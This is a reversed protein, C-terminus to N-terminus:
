AWSFEVECTSAIIAVEICKNPIAKGFEPHYTSGVIRSKGERVSWSIRAGSSLRLQGGNGLNDSEVEVKPHLYFRATATDYKGGIVDRVSVKSDSMWVMRRHLPSGNLYRYGDHACEVRMTNEDIRLDFPYARRAVRFAGWVESSNQANISVTSHAATGRQRLREAGEEYVSTGSNVVLREGHISFEFSLTDAHAHGPLYDPGVPAVDFLVVKGNRQLRVYGSEELHTIGEAPVFRTTTPLELREAYEDVQSPMAAIKFAADNFFAIEGDPHCMNTLWMRMKKIAELWSLPVSKEYARFLNVLDLLDELVIAHYMTSREFHGGDHLVQETLQQELIASGLAIWRDPERGSFFCGAFLLAKANGLLHNGLLHYELRKSLCYAQIALSRIWREQLRNGNLSWKVWNVIRKSIPYPEWGTGTKLPNERIWREILGEHWFRRDDARLATLDDFYHLHYRWLKSWRPNDWDERSTISHTENLFRFTYKETLSVKKSVPAVWPRKAMVPKPITSLSCNPRFIKLGVKAWLQVPRLHRVTRYYLLARRLQTM